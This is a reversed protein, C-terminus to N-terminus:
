AEEKAAAQRIPGPAFGDFRGARVLLEDLDGESDYYFLRREGLVTGRTGQVMCHAVWEADNTVSPHQDWPGIDQIIVRDAHVERVVFNAHRM